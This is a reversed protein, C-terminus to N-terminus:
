TRGSFADRLPTVPLKEVAALKQALRERLPATIRPQEDLSPSALPLKVLRVEPLHAITTMANQDTFEGAFAGLWLRFM